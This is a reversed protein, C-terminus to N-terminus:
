ITAIFVSSQVLRPPGGCFCKRRNALQWDSEAIRLGTICLFPYALHSFLIGLYVKLIVATTSTQGTHDLSFFSFARDASLGLHSCPVPCKRGSNGTIDERMSILLQEIYKGGGEVGKIVVYRWSKFSCAEKMNEEQRSHKCLVGHVLSWTQTLLSYFSIQLTHNVNMTALSNGQQLNKKSHQNNSTM